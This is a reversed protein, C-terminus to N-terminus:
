PKTAPTTSNNGASQVSNSTSSSSSSQDACKQGNPNQKQFTSVAKAVQGGGQLNEWFTVQSSNIIMKDYPEHLECGLKVLSVSTNATSAGAASSGGSTQLYYINTVVFYKSNLTTIHGFYVQGTNLFVAQLKTTDVYQDETKNNNNGFAALSIVAVLLVVVALVLAFVGIRGWKGGDAKNRRNNAPSGSAPAQASPTAAQSQVNRNSFDM